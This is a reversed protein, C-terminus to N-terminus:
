EDLLSVAAPDTGPAHDLPIGLNTLLRALLSSVRPATCDGAEPLSLAALTGRGVRYVAVGPVLAIPEVDDTGPLVRLRFEARGDRWMPDLDDLAIGQFISADSELRARFPASSEFYVPAGAVSKLYDLSMPQPNFLVVSGGSRLFRAVEALRPLGPSGVLRPARWDGPVLLAEVGELDAPAPTAGPSLGALCAPLDDLSTGYLFTRKLGRRGELLYALANALLVRARPEHPFDACLSEQAALVLGEGIPFELITVGEQWAAGTRVRVESVVTFNGHTPPLLPRISSTVVGTGAAPEAPAIGRLVPHRSAVLASSGPSRTFSPWLRLDESLTGPLSPQELLLLRMGSRARAALIPGLAERGRAFGGPGVVILDGEYLALGEFSAFIECHLGLAQLAGAARGEPDYLAVRARELRDPLGKGFIPPLVTFPFTARGALSGAERAEVTLEMASPGDVRPVPITLVVRSSGGRHSAILGGGQAAVGGGLRTEWGLEISGSGARIGEIALTRHVTSEAPLLTGTEDLRMTLSPGGTFRVEPRSATPRVAPSRVAGEASSAVRALVIITLLILFLLIARRSRASIM